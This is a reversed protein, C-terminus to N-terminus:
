EQKYFPHNVYIKLIMSLKNINKTAISKNPLKAINYKKNLFLGFCSSCTLSFNIPSSLEKFPEKLSDKLKILLSTALSIVPAKDRTSSFTPTKLWCTSAIFLLWSLKLLIKAPTFCYPPRASNEKALRNFSKNGAFWNM